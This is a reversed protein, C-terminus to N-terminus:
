SKLGKSNITEQSTLLPRPEGTSQGKHRDSRGGTPARPVAKLPYGGQVPGGAETKNQHAGSIGIVWFDWHNLVGIPIPRHGAEPLPWRGRGWASRLGGAPRRYGEAQNSHLRAESVGTLYSKAFPRRLLRDIPKYDPGWIALSHVGLNRMKGLTM